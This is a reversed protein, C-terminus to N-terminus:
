GWEIFNYMKQIIYTPQIIELVQQGRINVVQAIPIGVPNIPPAM